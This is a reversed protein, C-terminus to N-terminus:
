IEYFTGESIKLDQLRLGAHKRILDDPSNLHLYALNGIATTTFSKPDVYGSRLSVLIDRQIKVDDCNTIQKTNSDAYRAQKAVPFKLVDRRVKSLHKRSYKLGSSDHYGFFRVLFDLLEIM